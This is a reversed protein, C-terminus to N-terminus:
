LSHFSATWNRPLALGINDEFALKVLISVRGWSPFPDFSGLTGPSTGPSDTELVVSGRGGEQRLVGPSLSLTLGGPLEVGQQGGPPHLELLSHRVTHRQSHGGPGSCLHTSESSTFPRSSVASEAQVWKLGLNLPALM